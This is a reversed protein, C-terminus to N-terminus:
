FTVGILDECAEKFSTVISDIIHVGKQVRIQDWLISREVKVNEELFVNDGIVAWGELKSTTALQTNSGVAFSKKDMDLIEKNAKFYSDINGIDRWYHGKSIFSNIFAGSRILSNYCDIIDSFGSGPIHSLLTPDLIHIGTFALKGAEEKKQIDKIGGKENILIQNYPSYDHLILTAISGSVKHHKYAQNLDIDTLIDSNIVIFAENDWFDLTNKIGGGTGLIEPEVRVEIEVGSPKYADFYNLIQEFHHHANVVIRTVGHRKLYEITRLIIPKNVIPVLAKPKENTLPRLRTGLGAALIMAKM